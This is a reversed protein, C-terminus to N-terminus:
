TSVAAFGYSGSSHGLIAFTPCINPKSNTEQATNGHQSEHMYLYMVLESVAEVLDRACWCLSEVRCANHWYRYGRFAAQISIAALERVSGVSVGGAKSLLEECRSHGNIKAYDVPTHRCLLVSDIVTRIGLLWALWVSAPTQTEVDKETCSLWRKSSM